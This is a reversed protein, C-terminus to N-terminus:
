LVDVLCVTEIKQRSHIKRSLSELHRPLPRMGMDHFLALSGGYVGGDM